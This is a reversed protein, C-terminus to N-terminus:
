ESRVAALRFGLDTSRNVPAGRNRCAPRCDAPPSNWGGGRFVRSTAGSPGPPDVPPSTAYYGADYGDQCWEWVNGLMDYLGWRNPRKQGVPHTQSTSNGSFWAYEGLEAENDGFPYRITSGARCAYEWEAETPLRYGDGEVVTVEEGNIRYCPARGEKESFKNCFTVADLWSVQEVPLGDSGKFRSPNVGMVAQYHRQTVEHAGLSYPRTIKVTHPPKEDSGKTSGMVFKGPEIRVFTMGLSNTWTKPSLVPRATDAPKAKAVDAKPASAVPVPAVVAPQPAAAPVPRRSAPGLSATELPPPPTGEASPLKILGMQHAVGVCTVFLVLVSSVWSGREWHQRRM